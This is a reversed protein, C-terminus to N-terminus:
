SGNLLFYLFHNFHVDAVSFLNPFLLMDQFINMMSSNKIKVTRQQHIYKKYKVL